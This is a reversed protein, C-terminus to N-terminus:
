PNCLNSREYVKGLNYVEVSDLTAQRCVAHLTHSARPTTGIQGSRRLPWEHLEDFNVWGRM